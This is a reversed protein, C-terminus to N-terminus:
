MRAFGFMCCGDLLSLLLRTQPVDQDSEAKIKLCGRKGSSASINSFHSNAVHVGLSGPTAPPSTQEDSDKLSSILTNEM